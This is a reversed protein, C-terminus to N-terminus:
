VHARGIKLITYGDPGARAVLENAIMGDAGARNDVVVPQNLADSIKRAILRAQIDVPGGPPFAAVMRIPRLPYNQAQATASVLLLLVVQM